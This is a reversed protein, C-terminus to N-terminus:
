IRGQLLYWLIGLWEHLAALNANIANRNPLYDLWSLSHSTLYGAPVPIVDIEQKKFVMVTRPLHIASTVLYVRSYNNNNLWKRVYLGNEYTTRAKGELILKEEAVGMEKLWRGAIEAESPGKQGLAVGGSFIIPGGTKNYLQYGRVVRQLTFPSLEAENGKLNYNIGGGMIAIPYPETLKDSSYMRELPIVFLKVGLGSSIISFILLTLVALIKILKSQTKLFLYLTIILWSIIFLGPMSLFAGVFKELALM